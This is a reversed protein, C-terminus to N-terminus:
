LSQWLVLLREYSKVWMTDWATNAPIAQEDEEHLSIADGYWNEVYAFYSSQPPRTQPWTLAHIISLAQAWKAAWGAYYWAQTPFRTEAATDDAMDTRLIMQAWALDSASWVTRVTWSSPTPSPTSSLTIPPSLPTPTSPPSSTVTPSTPSATPASPTAAPTTVVIPSSSTTPAHSTADGVQSLLDTLWKAGGAGASLAQGPLNPDANVAAYGAVGCAAIMVLRTLCGSM